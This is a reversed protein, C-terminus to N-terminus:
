MLYGGFESKKWIASGSQGPATDIEYEFTETNVKKIEHKMTWMQKLGKDGPYGTIHFKKNTFVNDYTSTIGGWGTFKGVSKNLVLLAIDFRRDKREKWASFIYVRTVSMKGFPATDGNRAPYVSIKEALKKTAVNYVNHACTLVHHPGVISGSGGYKGDSFKMSLQVHISYPFKQTETIQKRGDEGLIVKKLVKEETCEKEETFEKLSEERIKMVRQYYEKKVPPFPTSCYVTEDGHKSETYLFVGPAYQVKSDYIGELVQLKNLTTAM